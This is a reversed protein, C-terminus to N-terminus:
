KRPKGLAAFLTGAICGAVPGLLLFASVTNLARVQAQVAPTGIALAQYDRWPDSSEGAGPALYTEGLVAAVAMLCAVISAWIACVASMGASHGARATRLGAMGLILVGCALLAIQVRGTAAASDQASERTAIVVQAVLFLGALMGMCAASFLAKRSSDESATGIWLILGIYGALAVAPDVATTGNGPLNMAQQWPWLRIGLLVLDFVALLLIPAHLTSQRSGKRSIDVARKESHIPDV